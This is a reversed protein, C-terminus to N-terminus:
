ALKAYQLSKTPMGGVVYSLQQGLGLDLIGIPSGEVGFVEGGRGARLQHLDDVAADIDEDALYRRSRSRPFHLRVM